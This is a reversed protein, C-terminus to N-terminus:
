SIIENVVFNFHLEFNLTLAAAAALDDGNGMKGSKERNERERQKKKTFFRSFRSIMVNFLMPYVAQRQWFVCNKKGIPVFYCM